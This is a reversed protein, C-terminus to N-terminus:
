GVRGTTRGVDGDDDLVGWEDGQGRVLDGGVVVVLDVAQAIESRPLVESALAEPLAKATHEDSLLDSVGLDLLVKATSIVTEIILPDQRRAVIAVKKFGGEKSAIDM